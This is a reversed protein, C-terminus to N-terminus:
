KERKYKVIRNEVKNIYIFYDELVEVLIEQKEDNFSAGLNNRKLILYSNDYYIKSYVFAFLISFVIHIIIIEELIKKKQGYVNFIIIQIISLSLINFFIKNYGFWVFFDNIKFILCFTFFITLSTFSKKEWFIFCLYSLTILVLELPLFKFLTKLYDQSTFFYTPNFSFPIYFIYNYLVGVVLMIGSLTIINEYKSSLNINKRIHYFSFALFLYIFVFQIKSYTKIPIFWWIVILVIM